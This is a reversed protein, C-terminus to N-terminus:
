ALLLARAAKEALQRDPRRDGFLEAYMVAEVISVYLYATSDVDGRLWAGEADPGDAARVEQLIDRQAAVARAHVGGTPTFLVRAAVEPEARLFDRFRKANLVREIFLRTIELVGDPGPLTRGARSEALLQEGLQWLVDGLLRDRSHVVRYLTARSISLSSALSVMEVTGHRLFYGCGGRIIDSASVV